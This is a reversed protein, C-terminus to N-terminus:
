GLLVNLNFVFLRVSMAILIIGFFKRLIYIGGKGIIKEVVYTKRLVFYLIAMNLVIAIIINATHYESRLSLTTTLTGPGAVLPFVVPIFTTYGAPAANRFIEVDLTMEIALAFLILSGAVAFSAIDTNFLKLLGEGAFLFLVVLALSFSTARGAHIKKGSSSLNVFIPISGTVDIVAFLVMFATLIEQINLHLGM